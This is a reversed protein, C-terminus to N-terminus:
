KRWGVNWIVHAIDRASSTRRMGAPEANLSNTSSSRQLGTSKNDDSRTPSQWGMSAAEEEEDEDDFFFKGSGKSPRLTEQSSSPSIVPSRYSTSHKMATEQPEPTDERYKLTTSPLMAITKGETAAAIMVSKKRPLPMKKKTRSRKMMVGGEDSDSNDYRETGAEEDEDDDGKIDVAICQSVQENFHIHKKESSPSIIGSSTSSPCLNSSERSLRRSSFPFTVYDTTARELTPRALRRRGDKEQAQVAAAAQKLLSSASLSRQLMVESMSRKKLIPKKNVFSNNKTLRASNPDTTIPNLTNPGTQLPGYLWTVDCDKLWNLTEPSVTKLKNKSKMWTRWSANELRAANSYESRRSVIFKWSSWIDEEKWNHSLYDVHRSPQVRVATDDEAHEVDLIFEPTNPRSTDGETDNDVPSVTYSDGTKPSTPPELDEPHNFYDSEEYHPFVFHDNAHVALDITDDCDSAISVNSAPTSSCSLDTSEAHAIRPSSPASSPASDPYAKSDMFNDSMHSASTTSPHFGSQKTVFKPQSHSRRLNSSFYTNEESSLVVAM